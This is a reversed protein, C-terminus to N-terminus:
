GWTTERGEEEQMPEIIKRAFIRQERSRRERGTENKQWIVIM